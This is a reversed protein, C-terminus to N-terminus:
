TIILGHFWARFDLDESFLKGIIYVLVNVLILMGTLLYFLLEKNALIPGDGEDQLIVDQPLGAYVYLLNMFVAIVSLFWFANFIFGITREIGTKKIRMPM